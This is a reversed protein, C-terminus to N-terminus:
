FVNFLHRCSSTNFNSINLFELSHCNYFLAQMDTVKSTNFYSLDISKLKICNYFMLSMTTISSTDFNTFNILELSYCNKFMSATNVLNSSNFKSLDVEKLNKLDYFLVNCSSLKNFWVMRIITEEEALILYGKKQAVLTDNIYIEDPYNYFYSSTIRQSGNGIIKITIENTNLYLERKLKSIVPIILILLIYFSINNIKKNKELNYKCKKKYKLFNQFIFNLKSYIKNEIDMNSDYILSKNIKNKTENISNLKKDKDKIISNKSKNIFLIDTELINKIHNTNISQKVFHGKLKENM